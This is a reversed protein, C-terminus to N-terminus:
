PVTNDRYVSDFKFKEQFSQDEVSSKAGAADSSALELQQSHQSLTENEIANELLQKEGRMPKVSNELVQRGSYKYVKTRFKILEIIYAKSRGKSFVRM